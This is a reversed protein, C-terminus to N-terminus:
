GHLVRGYLIADTGSAFYSVMRGEPMFGLMLAMRQAEPFDVNCAMELRRFNSTLMEHNVRKIFQVFHKGVHKGLVAWATGRGHGMDVIGACGICRGSDDFGSYAINGESALLEASEMTMYEKVQLRQATQVDIDFMDTPKYKEIRM